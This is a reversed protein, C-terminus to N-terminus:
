LGPLPEGPPGDAAPPTVPRLHEILWSIVEEESRGRLQPLVVTPLQGVRKPHGMVARTSLRNISLAWDGDIRPVLHATFYEM